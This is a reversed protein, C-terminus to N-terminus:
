TQRKFFVVGLPPVTLDLSHFHGHCPVPQSDVAGLNGQGSGGYIEADSNLLELYKGENPVGIRYHHFGVPTFNCVVVIPERGPAKRIFALVSNARDDPSIWEFGDGYCDCQHMAPENRYLCNLDSTWKQIGQHPAFDLLRWELSHDHNWEKRQGFEGGMFLLKKGNSAYQYGLLLRLGSYKNWDDGPMKSLLSSKGHVVEDHSLPLIFAESGSYTARFTLDRHHFSRYRPEVAIYRLTDNMWGMDWKYGFGLGGQHLPHSVGPWSTSEEAITQIDEYGRYVVINLQRIFDVAEVSERGGTNNPLWEGPKRGYDLYLMSAVGDVRLGDIHYKELWFLASACLFDRVEPRGYNFMLSHWEPHVGQRPDQHEYLCTGDFSALGHADDPFHSPVWDLIVGIGNQHLYDVLYMFDQPTGYRSTPAFYGTTQYGWSGYFPHEMVPMLEIHTFGLRLVYEALQRAIERYGLSRGNVRRWSGLHVEYIAVPADVSLTTGRTAMWKQDHWQYRHDWVISATKPPLETYFAFPDSKEAVYDTNQRCILYKYLHGKKVGPVFGRWVGSQRDLSLPNSSFNWGNFDGILSVADANPAWVGFSTGAVGDATVTLHAGLREYLRPASTESGSETELSM